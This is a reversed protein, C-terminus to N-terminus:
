EVGNYSRSHYNIVASLNDFLYKIMFYNAADWIDNFNMLKHFNFRAKEKMEDSQLFKSSDINNVNEIFNDNDDYAPILNYLNKALEETLFNPYLEGECTIFLAIRRKDPTIFKNYLKVDKKLMSTVPDEDYKIIKAISM